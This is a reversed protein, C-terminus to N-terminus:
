LEPARRLTPRNEDFTHTQESVAISKLLQTSFAELGCQFQSAILVEEVTAVKRILLQAAATDASCSRRNRQLNPDARAQSDQDSRDSCGKTRM